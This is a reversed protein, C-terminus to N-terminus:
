YNHHWSLSQSTCVNYEHHHWSTMAIININHCWSLYKLRKGNIIFNHCQNHYWSLWSMMDIIIVDYDKDDHLWLWPRWTTICQQWTIINMTIMIAYNNNDNCQLSQKWSTMIMKTMVGNDNKDHWWLWQRWSIMIMSM